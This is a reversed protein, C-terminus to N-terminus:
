KTEEGDIRNFTPLPSDLSPQAHSKEQDFLPEFGSFKLEESDSKQSLKDENVSSLGEKPYFNPM